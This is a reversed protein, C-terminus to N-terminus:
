SIDVHDKAFQLSGFVKKGPNFINQPDFINKVEEFLHYVESGFMTPLYPTRM